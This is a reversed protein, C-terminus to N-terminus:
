KRFRQISLVLSLIALAIVVVVSSLPIFFFFLGMTIEIYRDVSKDTLEKTTMQCNKNNKTRILNIVYLSIYGIFYLIILSIFSNIFGFVGGGEYIMMRTYSAAYTVKSYFIIMFIFFYIAKFM